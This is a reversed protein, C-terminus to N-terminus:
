RQLPACRIAMVAKTQVTSNEDLLLPLVKVIRGTVADAALATLSGIILCAIILQRM